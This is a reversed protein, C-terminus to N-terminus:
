RFKNTPAPIGNSVCEISVNGGTMEGVVNGELIKDLVKGNVTLITPESKVVVVETDMSIIDLLTTVQCSYTGAHDSHM